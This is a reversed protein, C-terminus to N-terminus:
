GVPFPNTLGTHNLNRFIENITNHFDNHCRVCLWRVSLPYNYDDHHGQPRCEIMCVECNNPRFIRGDRLANGIAINAKYRSPNKIRYEKTSIFRVHKGKDTKSYELQKKIRENKNPRNRDYERIKEINEDRHKHADKKTCEKCKNLHGDHMKKHKYFCTLPKETNCKFCIKM